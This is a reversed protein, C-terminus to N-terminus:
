RRESLAPGTPRKPGRDSVVLAVAAVVMGGGVVQLSTPREGFTLAALLLAAVPGFTDAIAARSPGIMKIAAVYAMAGASLIIGFLASWGWAATGLRLNLSGTATGVAFLSGTAGVLVIAMYALPDSTHIQRGTLVVFLALSLASALAFAVGSATVGPLGTGLVLAVGAFSAGVAAVKLTTLRDRGLAVGLLLAISPYTYVALVVPSVPMRALAEFLFLSQAAFFTAGLVVPYAARWSPMRPPRRLARAAASLAIAAFGIRLTSLTFANEGARYALRATVSSVAFM